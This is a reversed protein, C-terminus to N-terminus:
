NSHWVRGRIRRLPLVFVRSIITDEDKADGKKGDDVSLLIDRTRKRAAAAEGNQSQPPTKASLKIGNLTDVFGLSKASEVWYM